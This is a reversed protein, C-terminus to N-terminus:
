IEDGSVAFDHETSATMAMVKIGKVFELSLLMASKMEMFFDIFVCVCVCGPSPLQAVSNCRGFVQNRRLYIWSLVSVRQNPKPGTSRQKDDLTCSPNGRWRWCKLTASPSVQGANGPQRQLLIVEVHLIERNCWCILCSINCTDGKGCAYAHIHMCM